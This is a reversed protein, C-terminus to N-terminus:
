ERARASCRRAGGSARRSRRIAPSVAAGPDSFGSHRVTVGDVVEEKGFPLPRLSKALLSCRRRCAGDGRGHAHSVAPGSVGIVDGIDFLDLSAYADDGLSDKKFYLQIRGSEDALHAFTTKGHARWAVIRGAVRVTEGEDQKGEPMCRWDRRRAQHTRDFSYAFPAIGRAVLADLKERRARQVFNLDGADNVVDGGDRSESM